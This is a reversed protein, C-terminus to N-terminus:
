RRAADIGFLFDGARLQAFLVADVADVDGVSGAGAGAHAGLDGALDNLLLRTNLRNEM